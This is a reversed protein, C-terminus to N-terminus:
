ASPAAGDADDQADADAVAADLPTIRAAEAADKAANAAAEEPDVQKLVADYIKATAERDSKFDDLLIKREKSGSADRYVVHAIGKTKWRERQLGTISDWPAEHGGSATLGKDDMAVWRFNERLLKFGFWLGLPGTIAAMIWQTKIDSDYEAETKIKKPVKTSWGNEKALAPWLEPFTNPNAEKLEQYALGIEKTQPYAIHGDYVCYVGFGLMLLSMLVLRLRYGTAITAKVNM